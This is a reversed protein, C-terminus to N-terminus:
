SSRDEHEPRLSQKLEVVGSEALQKLRSAENNAKAVLATQTDVARKASAWNKELQEVREREQQLSRRLEVAGSEAAAAEKLNERAQARM